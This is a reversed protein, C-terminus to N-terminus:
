EIRFKFSMGFGNVIKPNSRDNVLLYYFEATLNKNFKKSFGAFLENHSFKEVSFDYFPETSVFPTIIEKQKKLIPYNFRLRNRYRFSNPRSNRIRYEIMNRDSISFRKWKNEFVASFRVRNEFERRGRVPQSARYFYEPIFSVNNNLCYIFSAAIRKDGLRSANDFFRFNGTLTFTLRDFEKDDKDTKKILPFTLSADSRIQVDERPVSQAFNSLSFVFFAFFLSPFKM